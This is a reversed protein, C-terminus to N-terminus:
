GTFMNKIFMHLKNNLNTINTLEAGGKFERLVRSIRPALGVCCIMFGGSSSPPWLSFFIFCYNRLLLLSKLRWEDTATWSGRTTSVALVLNCTHVPVLASSYMHIQISSFITIHLLKTRTIHYITAVSYILRELTRDSSSTLSVYLIDPRVHWYNTNMADISRSM